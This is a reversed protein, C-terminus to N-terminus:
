VAWHDDPVDPPSMSHDPPADDPPRVIGGCGGTRRATEALDRVVDLETRRRGSDLARPEGVEYEITVRIVRADTPISCQGGAVEHAWVDATAAQRLNESLDREERVVTKM